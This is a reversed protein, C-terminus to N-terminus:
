SSYVEQEGYEFVALSIRLTSSGLQVDERLLLILLGALYLRCLAPPSTKQFSAPYYLGRIPQSCVLPLEFVRDIAYSTTKIGSVRPCDDRPKISVDFWCIFQTCTCSIRSDLSSWWAIHSLRGNDDNFDDIRYKSISFQKTFSTATGCQHYRSSARPHGNHPTNVSLTEANSPNLMSPITM